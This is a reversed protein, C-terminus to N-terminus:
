LKAYCKQRNSRIESLLQMQEWQSLFENGDFERDKMELGSDFDEIAKGYEGRAMLIKGRLNYIFRCPTAENLGYAKNITKNCADLAKDYDNMLYYSEALYKIDYVHNFDEIAKDYQKLANYIRGRTLYYNQM